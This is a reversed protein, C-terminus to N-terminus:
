VIAGDKFLTPILVKPLWLLVSLFRDAITDKKNFSHHLSCGASEDPSVFVM